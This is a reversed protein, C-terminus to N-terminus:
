DRGVGWRYDRGSEGDGPVAGEIMEAVGRSDVRWLETGNIEDHAVFYLTGSVNKLYYPFLSGADISEAIGFEDIRWLQGGPGDATFYLIGDVNTLESAWSPEPGPNIGGGLGHEAQVLEALGSSNNVRWLEDGNVGDNATFYLTGNM